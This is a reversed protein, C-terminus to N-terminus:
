HLLPDFELEGLNLRRVEAGAMDAGRAYAQELAGCYTESDPHGLIILIRM